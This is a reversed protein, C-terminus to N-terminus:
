HGSGAKPVTGKILEKEEDTFSINRALKAEKPFDGFVLPDVTLAIGSVKNRTDAAAIDESSSLNAARSFEPGAGFGVMGKQVNKYKAHYIDYAKAHAMITNKLCKNQKDTTTYTKPYLMGSGLSLCYWSAENVTLWYKVKKGYAQFVFDAYAAFVDPMEDGLWGNFENELAQPHDFHSLTVMPEINKEKLKDLVKHYHDVGPQNITSNRGDPFIRAWSISFRFVNFGIEAAIDIDEAYRGYTDSAVDGNPQSGSSHYGYDFVNLGKGDANWGGETQYSSIGGGLLFDEPLTYKADESAAPLGCAASLTLALLALLKM